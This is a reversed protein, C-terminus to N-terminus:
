NKSVLFALMDRYLELRPEIQEEKFSLLIIKLVVWLISNNIREMNLSYNSYINYNEIFLDMLAWNRKGYFWRKGAFALSAYAVDIEPYSYHCTDFDFIKPMNNDAIILNEPRYDGHIVMQQDEQRKFFTKNNKIFDLSIQHIMELSVMSKNSAGRDSLNTVAFEFIRDINEGWLEPNYCHPLDRDIFYKFNYNKSYKHLNALAKACVAIIEKNQASDENLAFLNFNEVWEFVIINYGSIKHLMVGNSSPVIPIHFQFKNDSLFKQFECVFLLDDANRKINTTTDNIVKVCYNLSFGEAKLIGNWSNTEIPILSRIPYVKSLERFINETNNRLKNFWQTTTLM